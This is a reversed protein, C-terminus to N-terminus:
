FSKNYISNKQGGKNSSPVPASSSNSQVDYESELKRLNRADSGLDRADSQRQRRYFIGEGFNLDEGEKVKNPNVIKYKDKNQGMYSNAGRRDIGKLLEDLADMDNTDTVSFRLPESDDDLKIIIEDSGVVDEDSESTISRVKSGDIDLLSLPINNNMWDVLSKVDEELGGKQAAEVNKWFNSTDIAVDYNEDPTPQYGGYEQNIEQFDAMTVDVYKPNDKMFQAALANNDDVNITVQEAGYGSPSKVSYTVYSTGADSYYEADPHHQKIFDIEGHNQLKYIRENLNAIVDYKKKAGKFDKKRAYADKDKKRQLEQEKIGLAQQKTSDYVPGLVDFMKQRILNAENIQGQQEMQDAQYFYAGVRGQYTRSAEYIDSDPSGFLQTNADGVAGRTFMEKAFTGLEAVDKDYRDFEFRDSFETTGQHQEVGYGKEAFMKQADYGQTLAQGDVKLKNLMQHYQRSIEMADPDSPDPANVDVGTKAATQGLENLQSYGEYFEDLGIQELKEPPNLSDYGAEQPAQMMGSQGYPIAINTGFDLGQQYAQGGAGTGTSADFGTTIGALQLGRGPEVFGGRQRAMEEQQAVRLAQTRSNQERVALDRSIDQQTRFYRNEGPM